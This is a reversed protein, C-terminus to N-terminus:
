LSSSEPKDYINSESPFDDFHTVDEAPPKISVSPCCTERHMFNHLVREYIGGMQQDAPKQFAPCKKHATMLLTQIDFNPDLLRSEINKLRSDLKQMNYLISIFIDKHTINTLFPSLENMIKKELYEITSKEKKKKEEKYDLFKKRLEFIKKNIKTEVEFNDKIFTNHENKINKIEHLIMKEHQDLDENYNDEEASLPHHPSTNFIFQQTHPPHQTIGLDM